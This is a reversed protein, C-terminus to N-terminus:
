HSGFRTSATQDHDRLEREAGQIDGKLEAFKDHMKRVATSAQNRLMSQFADGTQGLLAGNEMQAAQNQIGSNLADMQDACRQFINAMQEMQEYDMKIVDSM